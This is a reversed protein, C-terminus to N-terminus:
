FLIFTRPCLPLFPSRLAPAGLALLKPLFPPILLPISLFPVTLLSYLTGKGVLLTQAVHGQLGLSIYVSRHNIFTATYTETTVKVLDM